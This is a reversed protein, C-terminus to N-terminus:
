AAVPPELGLVRRAHEWRKVRDAQGNLGGNIRKTIREFNDADALENCGRTQWYRAAILAGVEIELALEPQVELPLGLAEGFEAYNARGTLQIPGRGHFLVGDGPTVNGLDRRGEYRKWYTPGGLEEIYKFGCSEHAVQAYFAALRQLTNIDYKDAAVDFAQHYREQKSAGLGPFLRAFQLGSVKAPTM